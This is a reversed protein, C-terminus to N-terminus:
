SATPEALWAQWRGERRWEFGKETFRCLYLWQNAVLYRVTPHRALITDIKERAADIVVCLRLPAHMRRQGDHLSQRSLGIRLDGTNGEFVGIRGCAVNHLTKNGSGYRDPDVSSAYYQLNIWHTVVMPATMILELVTGDPDDASSYDHLFSRGALDLGRTRFRPAIIFAANNALGWEPRTEAWDRARKRLRRLLLAPRSVLHGLGLDPAREARTRHGAEELSRELLRVENIHSAPVDALDFLTVEDTTTNHLAGIAVTDAPICIGHGRLAERVATDNLLGALVRANVEGTQGGCAGCDLAAAQPNNASQSGHGVLVLLRAFGSTLSMARLISAVLSAQRHTADANELVLRPRLARADSSALGLADAPPVDTGFHKRLLAGAYGMGFTEVLSFAGTASRQFPQLAATCGLARARRAAIACDRDLKGTSNSVHLSPALLGPLQPRATAAGIPRYQIPLGFFGAFGRTETAPAVAEVARRLRESRVDICFVLQADPRAQAAPRVPARSLVRILRDQYSIEHARQWILEWEDRVNSATGRAAEWRDQWQLAASCEAGGDHLLAEWCTRIALLERLHSDAAGSLGAQWGLYACWSAWGNIRLLCARLFDTADESSVGIRDLAWAIAAHPSDPLNVARSCIESARKLPEIARDVRLASRWGLYLGAARDRRWDSQHEDFYSACYQSVQQTIVDAWRPGSAPPEMGDVIDSLLPLGRALPRQLSLAAVASQMTAASKSEALARSLAAPSIDGCHWADLYEHPALTFRGGGVRRMAAAVHAFPQDILGWYPNVAIQRDLPWSPAVVRCALEIASELAHHEHTKLSVAVNM